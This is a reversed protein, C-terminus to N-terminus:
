TAGYVPYKSNFNPPIPATASVSILAAAKANLLGRRVFSSNRNAFNNLYAMHALLLEVIMHFTIFFM